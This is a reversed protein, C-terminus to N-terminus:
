EWVLVQGLVDSAQEGLCNCIRRTATFFIAVRDIFKSVKNRCKLTFPGRSWFLDVLLRMACSTMRPIFEAIIDAIACPLIRPYTKLM